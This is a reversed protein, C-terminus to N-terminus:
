SVHGGGTGSAVDPVRRAPARQSQHGPGVVRVSGGGYGGGERGGGSLTFRRVRHRRRCRDSGPSSTGWGGGGAGGGAGAGRPIRSDQDREPRRNEHILEPPPSTSAPLMSPLRPSVNCFGTRRHGFNASDAYFRMLLAIIHRATAFSARPCARMCSSKRVFNSRYSRAMTRANCSSPRM